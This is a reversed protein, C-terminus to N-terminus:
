QTILERSINTFCALVICVGTRATEMGSDPIPQGM